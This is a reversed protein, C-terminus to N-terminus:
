ESRKTNFNNKGNNSEEMKYRIYHPYIGKGNRVAYQKM